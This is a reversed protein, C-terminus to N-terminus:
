SGRRRRPAGAATPSHEDFDQMRVLRDTGDATGAWWSRGDGPSYTGARRDMDDSIPGDRRRHVRRPHPPLRDARLFRRISPPTTTSRSRAASTTPCTWRPRRARRTPRGPHGAARDVLRPGARPQGEALDLAGATMLGIPTILDVVLDQLQGATLRLHTWRDTDPDGPAVTPREGDFSLTWRDGDVELLLPSLPPLPRDPQPWRAALAAPLDIAFFGAADVAVPDADSRTRLDLAM